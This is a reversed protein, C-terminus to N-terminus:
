RQYDRVSARVVGWIEVTEDCICLPYSMRSNRPELYGVGSRIVLQRCVFGGEVIAIVISGNRAKADRDVVVIDHDNLGAEVMSSGSIRFVFAAARDLRLLEILSLADDEWDQAPSPFGAGASAVVRLRFGPPIATIPVPHNSLPLM